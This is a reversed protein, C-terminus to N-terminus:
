DNYKKMLGALGGSAYERKLGEGYQNAINFDEQTLNDM